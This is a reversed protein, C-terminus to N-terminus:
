HDNNSNQTNESSENTEKEVLKDNEIIYRHFNIDSLENYKHTVYIVTKDKRSLFREKILRLITTRSIPDIDTVPEDFVLIDKAQDQFYPFLMSVRQCQGGSLNRFFVNAINDYQLRFEKCGKNFMDMDIESFQKKIQRYPHLSNVADQFITAFQKHIDDHCYSHYNMQKKQVYFEGALVFKEPLLGMITKLLVSKGSGSPGILLVKDGAQININAHHILPPNRHNFQITLNKIEIM